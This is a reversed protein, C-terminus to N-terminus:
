THREHLWYNLTRRDIVNLLQTQFIGKLEAPYIQQNTSFDIGNARDISSCNDGKANATLTKRFKIKLIFNEQVRM